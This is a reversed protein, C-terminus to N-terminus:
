DKELFIVILFDPLNGPYIKPMKITFMEFFDNQYSHGHVHIHTINQFTSGTFTLPVVSDDLIFVFM